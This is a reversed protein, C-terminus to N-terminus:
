FKISKDNFYQFFYLHFYTTFFIKTSLFFVMEDSDNTSKSICVYIYLFLKFFMKNM